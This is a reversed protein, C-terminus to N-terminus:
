EPRFLVKKTLMLDLEIHWTVQVIRAPENQPTNSRCTIGAHGQRMDGQVGSGQVRFAQVRFSTYTYM